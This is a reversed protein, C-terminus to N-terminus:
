VGLLYAICAVLNVIMHTAIPAWISDAKQYTYCALLHIPLQVLYLIMEEEWPWFTLGNVINPIALILAMQIYARVSSRNFTSAFGTAYYLLSTTVPTVLVLCFVAVIPQQDMLVSPLALLDIEVTPIIGQMILPNEIRYGIGYIVASVILMLVTGDAVRPIFSRFDMRIYFFTDQLYERFIIVMAVCNIIYYVFQVWAQANRDLEFGLSFFSLLYPAVVLSVVGYCISTVVNSNDPCDITVAKSKSM